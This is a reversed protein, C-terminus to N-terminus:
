QHNGRRRAFGATPTDPQPNAPSGSTALKLNEALALADAVALDYSLRGGAQREADWAAAGLQRRAPDFFTRRLRPFVTLDSPLPYGLSEAAGFLRAGDTLRDHAVCITALGVMAEDAGFHFARGVCAQLQGVFADRASSWNALMVNALGINGLILMNSRPALEPDANARAVDLLRLADIPRGDGIAAFAADMHAGALGRRNGVQELLGVARQWLVQREPGETNIALRYLAIGLLGIDGSAEAHACAEESYTRAATLEGLNRRSNAMSIRARAVGAHDGAELYLARAEAALEVAGERDRRMTLQSARGVAVRARDAPSARDGASACAADLWELGSPDQRINWYDGLIGALRVAAPPDLELALGLGARLNNLDRDFARFADTEDWTEFGAVHQEAFGTCYAIFRRRAAELEAPERELQEAAFERISELLRLRTIGDTRPERRLLSKAVLDEITDLPADAVARLADADGGDALVSLRALVAQERADLLHHSWEITARITRQRAPADRHGSGLDTVSRELRDALDHVGLVGLRAAALELALPLGDLRACIRAVALAADAPLVLAPDLRRVAALFVATAATQELEDATAGEPCEPVALPEVAYRQEAKLDLPARSTVLMRVSACRAHLEGLLPAADVLHEFNDLVLLVRRDGLHRVLTDRASEGDLSSADVARVIAPGVDDPRAVGSLDIWVPADAFRSRAEDAAAIALRTKGVGGPGTLTLLRADDSSSIRNAIEVRERDRGIMATAPSPVRASAPQVGTPASPRPGDLTPASALISAQLRTLTDSPALGLEESLRERTRQYVDLADARRGCAYLARMLQDALRERTPSALLLVELEAVVEAHRGLQLDAEIRGEVALGRLEDLRRIEPQAFDEFAVDALAPGRWFALAAAFQERSRAWDSDRSAELGATVRRGFVAADLEDLAFALLYGGGVTRLEWRGDVTIPVLAQRLRAVAMQLRKRAGASASEAPWLAEILADVSVASGANVVLMALLSLQRPGGLAIPRGEAWVEVPGLIRVSGFETMNGARLSGRALARPLLDSIWNAGSTRADGAPRRQWNADPRDGRPRQATTLRVENLL